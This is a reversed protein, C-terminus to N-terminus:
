IKRIIINLLENIENACKRYVMIGYGWPDSIDMSRTQGAYEKITFTRDRLEPFLQIVMNKHNNTACLILDCDKIDSNAINTAIHKSMDIGYENKMVEIAENTSRDGDEAYTGCSHVEIKKGNEQAIKKM